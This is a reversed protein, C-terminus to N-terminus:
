IGGETDCLNLFEYLFEQTLAKIEDNTIGECRTTLINTPDSQTTIVQLM